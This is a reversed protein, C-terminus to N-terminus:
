SSLAGALRDGVDLTDAVSSSAPPTVDRDLEYGTPTLDLRAISEGETPHEAQLVLEGTTIGALDPIVQYRGDGLPTVTLDIEEDGTAEAATPTDPVNDRLTATFSAGDLREGDDHLTVTLGPLDGEVTMAYPYVRLLGWMGAGFHSGVHCHYFWDGAHGQGLGATQEFRHYEGPDLRVADIFEGTDPDEWPHGHLHFTHMEANAPVTILFHMQEGEYAELMPTDPWTETNFNNEEMVLVYARQGLHLLPEDAGAHGALGPVLALAPTAALLALGVAHWRM